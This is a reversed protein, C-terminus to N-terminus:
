NKTLMYTELLWKWDSSLDRLTDFMEETMERIEWQANKESRTEYFHLFERLNMTVTIETKTALPLLFRADEKKVGSNVASYYNKLYEKMVNDYEECHDTGYDFFSPPTVYWDDGEQPETYRLSKETYSALRHRVLQHTCSRSIGSVKWTICVHELVSLHGKNICTQIRKKSIDDKGWSTGAAKSIVYIPVPTSAIINVNM